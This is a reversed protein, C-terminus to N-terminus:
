IKPVGIRELHSLRGSSLYHMYLLDLQRYLYVGKSEQESLFQEELNSLVQHCIFCWKLYGDLDAELQFKKRIPTDLIPLKSPFFVNMLKITGVFENDGIGSLHKLKNSVSIFTDEIFEGDINPNFCDDSYNTEFTSKKSDLYNGLENFYTVMSFNRNRNIYESFRRANWIILFPAVAHGINNKNFNHRFSEIEQYFDDVNKMKSYVSLDLDELRKLTAISTSDFSSNSYWSKVSETTDFYLEDGDNMINIFQIFARFKDINM